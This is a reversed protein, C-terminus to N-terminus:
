GDRQERAIAEVWLREFALAKLAEVPLLDIALVVGMVEPMPCAFVHDMVHQGDSLVAAVYHWRPDYEPLADGEAHASQIADCALALRVPDWAIV